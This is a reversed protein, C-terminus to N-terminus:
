LVSPLPLQSPRTLLTGGLGLQRGCAALLASTKGGNQYVGPCLHVLDLLCPKPRVAGPHHQPGPGHGRAPQQADVYLDNLGYCPHRVGPQVPSVEEM